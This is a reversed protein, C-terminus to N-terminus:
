IDNLYFDIKDYKEPYVLDGYAIGESTLLAKFKNYNYVESTFFKDLGTVVNSVPKASMHAPAQTFDTGNYVYLQQNVTDWWSSGTVS